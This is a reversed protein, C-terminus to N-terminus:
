NELEKAEKWWTELTNMDIELMTKETGNAQAEVYAFRRMFTTLATHLSVEPSQKIFRGLSVVALLLDGYEKEREAPGAAKIEELEEVVKDYVQEIAEYEFGLKAVDKQLTEAAVLMSLFSSIEQRPEVHGQQEKEKQKVEQWISSVAEATEVQQDRDGFVHPHRRIMKETLTGIVDSLQFYGSEEGIQAHLLVQLLVDGLEETLQEDDELDIAEFVEYSEELLFRKLSQHTQKQDWPCGGPGRLQAIITKLYNLDKYLLTEDKIPPVYVATLNNVETYHDLEYLPVNVLVEESSGAATVITVEYDDPYMEMLTLKVDSAILSDYVQVIILHHRLQVEEQKLVTGDLIQCGEIPDIRLSTYMQDLFSAGGIIELQVYKDAAAQHLLQVTKEAVFPHGPVAYVLDENQAREILDGVIADYVNEFADFTEYIHDYSSFLVGEQKLEEVVPHDLTRVRVGKAQKMTRYIGIPMQDLGGAGLGVVKITGM